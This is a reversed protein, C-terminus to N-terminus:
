TGSKGAPLREEQPLLALHPTFHCGKGNSCLSIYESEIRTGSDIPM